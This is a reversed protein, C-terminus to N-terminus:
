KPPEIIRWNNFYNKEDPQYPCELVYSYLHPELQPGDVRWQNNVKIVHYLYTQVGIKPTYAIDSCIGLTRYTVKFFQTYANSGKQQVPTIKYSNIVTLEDWGPADPWTTYKLLFDLGHLVSYGTADLYLYKELLEKPDSINNDLMKHPIIHFSYASKVLLLSYLLIILISNLINKM